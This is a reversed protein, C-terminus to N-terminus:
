YTSRSYQANEHMSFDFRMPLINNTISEDHSSSIPGQVNGAFHEYQLISEELLLRMNRKRLWREKRKLEVVLERCHLDEFKEWSNFEDEYGKWKILYVYNDDKRRDTGIFKRALIEEVEWHDVSMLTFNDLNPYIGLMYLKSSESFRSSSPTYEVSFEKPYLSAQEHILLSEMNEANEDVSRFM